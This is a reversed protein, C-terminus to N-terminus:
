DYVKRLMENAYLHDDKASLLQAAKKYGTVNTTDLQLSELFYVLALSDKGDALYVEGFATTMTWVPSYLLRCRVNALTMECVRLNSM